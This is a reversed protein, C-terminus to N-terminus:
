RKWIMWGSALLSVTMMDDEISFSGNGLLM